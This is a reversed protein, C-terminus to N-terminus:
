TRPRMRWFEARDKVMKEAEARQIGNSVFYEILQADTSVDDNALVAWLWKNQEKKKTM